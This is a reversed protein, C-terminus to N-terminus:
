YGENQPKLNPNLLLESEPVPLLRANATWNPKVGKLATDLRGTRKLDFFRHGFECFLELKRQKLIEEILEAETAEATNGLGAYNRIVNIDEKAGLLDGSMLRAEARILYLESLRLVISYESSAGANSDQRYKYAHYWNSTGNNVQKIWNTKRLDGATFSNVLASSLAMSPPPGSKFIFLSGELTPSGATAPMLQWITSPSGKLFLMSPNDPLRYLGKENLVSSAANSAEDWQGMYLLLRALLANAAWKNPRVREAGTYASSLLSSARLLDQKIKKYVTEAPMRAVKKNLIYDTTEIYPIDGYLGTLYLHVLGRIFLAEGIITERDRQTISVSKEMGQIVANAAYIQNYGTKWLLLADSTSALLANNFFVANGTNPTGYFDLEDTYLGLQASVGSASGNLIGNTRLSTYIEVLAATATNNNEFVDDANLQSAPLEVDTFNCSAVFVALTVMAIRLCPAKICYKIINNKM